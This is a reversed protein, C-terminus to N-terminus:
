SKMFFYALIKLLEYTHVPKQLYKDFSYRLIEGNNDFNVPYATLAVIPINIRFTKILQTATYGDMVPMKMDMFILDIQAENRCFDVAEQGNHAHLIKVNTPELFTELYVFNPIEDEAILIIKDSLDMNEIILHEINRSSYRNERIPLSFYFTTGKNIESKLWIKGKLMEVYSKVISLGIGNGGYKRSIGTDLQRFPEFIKEHMEKCIGIGTDSISFLIEHELVNCKLEIAGSETFKIANSILHRLIKELKEEDTLFNLLIESSSLFINFKLNKREFKSAFEDFVVKVLASVNILKEKLAMQCSYIQSIEIINEVIEILQFCGQKINDVFMKKQEKTYTETALLESFGSISNMPTRIEHSISQLFATKLMDSEEAKEKALMLATVDLIVVIVKKFTKRYCEPVFSCLFVQKIKGNKTRQETETEFYINSEALSILAKRFSDVTKETFINPFNQSLDEFNEYELLECTKRNVKIVKVLSACEFFKDPYQSFYKEFDSIGQKKLNELYKKAEFCDEELLAVPITEFLVEYNKKIKNSNKLMKEYKTVNKAFGLVESVENNKDRKFVTIKFSFCLYNGNKHKLHFDCEVSINKESSQLVEIKEYFKERM